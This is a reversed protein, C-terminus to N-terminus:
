TAVTSLLTVDAGYRVLSQMGILCLVPTHCVSMAVAYDMSHTRMACYFGILVVIHHCHGFPWYEIVNVIGLASFSREGLGSVQFCQSTSM